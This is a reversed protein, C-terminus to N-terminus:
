RSFTTATETLNQHSTPGTPLPAVSRASEVRDIVRTYAGVCVAARVKVNFLSCCRHAGHAPVLVGVRDVVVLAVSPWGRAEIGGESM